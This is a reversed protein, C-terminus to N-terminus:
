RVGGKLPQGQALHICYRITNKVVDMELYFTPPCGPRWNVEYIWIKGRDDLAVDIGLEDITESYHEMQLDDMHRALVLSFSELYRKINYYEDGFEQKLFPVLYNMSGGSNINSVITGPAGIRPYIATIVWKGEGNKQVHLRFDFVSGEKTRCNIYPQVLFEEVELQASVFEKLEDYSYLHEDTDILLRFDNGVREILIISMGKRGNVPKFVIKRYADLMSFFHSTGKIVESPILYQTLEGAEMLRKYVSMKNGISHTTFPIDQKLKEIVESSKALKEPSGTNYIVHPFPFTGQVWKGDEYEYGSITRTTFDVGGPSFYIMKTGEAKAVAAYAYSKIVSDPHKRHHLMGIRIM